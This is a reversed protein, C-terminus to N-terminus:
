IGGFLLILIIIVFIIVVVLMIKILNSKQKQKEKELTIVKNIKDLKEKYIILDNKYDDLISYPDEIVKMSKISNLKHKNKLIIENSKNIFKENLAQFETSKKSYILNPNKIINSKYLYRLEKKDNEIKLSIERNLKNYNIELENELNHIKNMCPNTKLYSKSIDLSHKKSTILKDANYKFSDCTKDLNLRYNTSIENIDDILRNSMENLYYDKQDIQIKCPNRIVYEEKIKNLNLRNSHILDFSKLEFRKVLNNYENTNKDLKSYIYNILRSNFNDINNKVEQKDKIALHAARTPTSARKDAVLDCLTIDDEHGVASIVPTNCSFITRVVDEENFSWLEELNGGGRGVIIVDVGFNDAHKIQSILEKKSAPGQVAAPFLLVECYPWDKKVTKIIDHIVSGSKSTVVGIRNPFEILEKKHINDFLGEGDLKKKLQKFAIFLKGLGDDTASFIDLQYKGHLAYVDVDASVLLKMGNEIEFGIKDRNEERVICPVKSRQDKLTFYLHNRASIFKNSVEGKVHVNKFISSNDFFNKLKRNLMYVSLYSERSIIGDGLNFFM